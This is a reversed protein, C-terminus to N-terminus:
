HGNGLGGSIVSSSLEDSKLPRSGLIAHGRRDIPILAADDQDRGDLSQGKAALIGMVLYPSKGIRVTKGVPDEDGFLNKVVTHGLLTVQAASRVDSDDFPFGASLRWNRVDLFRPTIGLVSTGWNNAGYVIQAAGPLIPAVADVTSLEELAQADAVTLTPVNGTGLRVGSATASGALVVFLNRGMSAISRDVFDRAGQGVALMMIVAGVGIMMGLMTLFTRLRNAGMAQRAESLMPGMTM